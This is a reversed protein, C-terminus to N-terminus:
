NYKRDFLDIAYKNLRDTDVGKGKLASMLDALDSFQKNKILKYIDRAKDRSIIGGSNIWLSSPNLNNKPSLLELLYNERFVKKAKLYQPPTLITKLDTLFYSDKNKIQSIQQLQLNNLDPIFSKLEEPKYDKLLKVIKTDPQAPPAVLGQGNISDAIADRALKLSGAKLVFNRAAAGLLGLAFLEEPILIAAIIAGSLWTKGGIIKRDKAKRNPEAAITRFDKKLIPSWVCRCRPHVPIALKALGEFDDLSVIIGQRSSCLPCRREDFITSFRVGEVLGSRM